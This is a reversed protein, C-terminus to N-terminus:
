EIESILNQINESVAVADKSLSGDQMLIPTDIITKIAKVLACCCMLDNKEPSSFSEFNYNRLKMVNIIDSYRSDFIKYLTNLLDSFMEARQQIANCVTRVVKMEEKYEMAKSKHARAQELKENAKSSMVGGLIALAPAAVLGGLVCMGGAVGFGGAALSGGGLWALTANSAAAGALSSIATGTSAAGLLMVGNYAGFAAVAGAAGGALTGSVLSEAVSSLEDVEQYDNTDIVFKNIEDLGVSAKIKVNKVKRLEDLFPKVISNLATIKRQGLHEIAVHSSMRADNAKKSAKEVIKEADKYVEDAKNNTRVADVTKKAGYGGIALAAAGFLIAPFPM